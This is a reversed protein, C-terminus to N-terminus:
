FGCYPGPAPLEDRFALGVPAVIVTIDKAPLNTKNLGIHGHGTDVYGQGEKVVTPTCSPDDYEYFTVEGELVTIFVPGPHKHWGTTSKPEYAHERIVLDLPSKAHARFDLPYTHKDSDVRFADYTGRGILNPTVGSAPSAWTILGYALGAVTLLLVLIRIM